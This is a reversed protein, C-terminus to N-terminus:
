PKDGETPHANDLHARAAALLSGLNDGIGFNGVQTEWLCGDMECCLQLREEWDVRVTFREAPPPTFLLGAKFLVDLVYRAALRDDNRGGCAKAVAGEALDLTEETYPRDTM